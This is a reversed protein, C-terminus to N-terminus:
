LLFELGLVSFAFVLLWFGSALGLFFGAAVAPKKWCTDSV